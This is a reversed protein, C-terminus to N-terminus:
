DTDLQSIQPHIKKVANGVGPAADISLRDLPHVDLLNTTFGHVRPSVLNRSMRFYLPVIPADNLLLAEADHLIAFRRAPDTEAGAAAILRDYEASSYGTSNNSGGTVFMDLFTNPDPYDGVWGSRCVQYEMLNVNSLYSGWELSQLNVNVGLHRKWQDQILQAVSAHVDSGQNYLIKIAPLGAGEPYGAEAMLKRAAAPDYALCEASTYGAIGPPVLSLAPKEGTRTVKEVIENRDIALALAKRVLRNNLPPATVNIRYFNVTLEPASLFDARKQKRLESIVLPPVNPIWDATGTLYMNLATTETDVSLADISRLAVHERNWYHPNKVMRIRDRIRRETMTYAGNSVIHNAKIWGPFGYRDVVHPPM